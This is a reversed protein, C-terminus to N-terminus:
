CRVSPVACVPLAPMEISDSAMAAASAFAVAPTHFV